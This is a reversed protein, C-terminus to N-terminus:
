SESPGPPAAPAVEVLAIRRKIMKEVTLRFGGFDFSDKERPLRGCQSLFFGALTTYHKGEPIRLDLRANVDKVPAAGAVLYRGGDLPTVWSGAKDDHEDEIEGVIEEIIDELTVLGDVNGFEDVVLAMHVAKEQMQRLVKELSASEPVFLAKRLIDKIAFEKNDILFGVIDKGYIVGEISDLRGRFVPYRSYGASRITNLVDERRSDIEIAKIEPRPVMIEKIPRSGIDLAGSVIRRRLSSLGRAGAHLAIRAEEENLSRFPGAGAARSSPVVLGTVFNFLKAVPALLFMAARVPYALFSASRLANHAAFTKPNIEGFVLLFLTTAVTAYLVARNRQAVPLVTSFLWTAISAAAANVLTNGILITALLENTRAKIRRALAARKSGQREHYELSYPNVALFATESSSFFASLILCLVFLLIGPLLM